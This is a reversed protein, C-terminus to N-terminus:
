DISWQNMIVHYFETGQAPQNRHLNEYIGLVIKVAREKTLGQLGEKVSEWNGGLWLAVYTEVTQETQFSM